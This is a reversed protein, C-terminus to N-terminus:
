LLIRDDLVREGTLLVERARKGVEVRKLETSDRIADALAENMTWRGGSLVLEEVAAARLLDGVVTRLSDLMPEVRLKKLRSLAGFNFKPFSLPSEILLEHPKLILESLNPLLPILYPLYGQFSEYITL